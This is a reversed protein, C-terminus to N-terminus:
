PTIKVRKGPQLKQHPPLILLDGSHLGTLVLLHDDREETGVTLDRLEAHGNIALWAKATSGSHDFLAAKPAYLALRKSSNPAPTASSPDTTTSSNYFEARVLMEPRLRPDPHYIAVKTQLTNRQIDAEGAIRTVTGTLHLDPLLDTTFRVPQGIRLGAAENLPVDIRAQLKAPNYLEVITASNPDDMGLMRKKGPAAHLRLVIGEMPSSITCRDLALQKRALDTQAEFISNDIATREEEVQTIKAAFRPIEAAAEAVTARQRNVQLRAKTRALESTAGASVSELRKSIDELEALLAEEGTVKESAAAQEAELVPILACHATRKSQLSTIHQTAQQVNLKADDDILTALLQGKAITDGELVHVEHIVGDILTSVYSIYPDPEIWGSAQFLLPGSPLAPSESAETPTPRATDTNADASQRLTVVPATQVKLAPLLRSGFLLAFVALFGLALGAPLLWSPIRQARDASASRTTNTLKDLSM